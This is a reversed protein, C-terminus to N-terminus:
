ESDTTKKVATNKSIFGKIKLMTRPRKANSLVTIQKSFGGPRKTDYSVEIQGKQGPMIPAEPKKPVTCGCTSKIDKIILPANGVNTFEFTRTGESGLAVKGYDITENEFKFEQANVTLTIFCVAIISLITKM